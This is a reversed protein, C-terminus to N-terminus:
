SKKPADFEYMLRSIMKKSQKVLERTEAIEKKLNQANAQNAMKLTLLRFHIAVLIQAIEDHLQRSGRGRQDEQLSLIKRMRYRLRRQENRSEQLLRTTQQSSKKLSAESAQRRVRGRELQRASASAEKVRRSLTQTLEKVRLDAKRGARHTKEIPVLAEMFFRDGREIHSSDGKVSLARVTQEHVQAVALTDMGLAVARQGLGVTSRLNADSAHRVYRRLAAGYAKVWKASETTALM